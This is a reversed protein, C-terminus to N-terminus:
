KCQLKCVCLAYIYQVHRQLLCHVFTCTCCTYFISISIASPMPMPMAVHGLSVLSTLCTPDSKFHVGVMQEYAHFSSSTDIKTCVYIMQLFFRFVYTFPLKSFHFYLYLNYNQCCDCM